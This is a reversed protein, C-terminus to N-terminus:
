SHEVWYVIQKLVFDACPQAMGNGIAKYRKADSAPKGHVEIDTWGDPLGQLRECELPTLKRVSLAQTCAHRDITNLTFSKELDVGSGQPGNKVDRGIMSGQLCYHAVPVNNGGTGMHASLTYYKGNTQPRAVDVAHTIDYLDVTEPEIIAKGVLSNTNGLGKYDRSCLTASKEPNLAKFTENVIMVGGKNCTPDGGQRDLTRSTDSRYACGSEPNASNMGKSHRSCLVYSKTNVDDPNSSINTSNGIGKAFNQSVNNGTKFDWPLSKEVFLIQEACRKETAFDAVLFIRKRRQPVGWYQADLVRWATDCEASRVLGAEGWRKSKPIPVEAKTIASLVAKFDNGGNSSFAGPVNEWVFFRPMSGNTAKRMEYLIRVAEYFLSSESGSLGKRNGSLSLNQCPSGACLIEVPEIESGNISRVDTYSKVEPFHTESVARPYDDIEARWLPRVDSHEAALLWGGIGDFLSGLTLM